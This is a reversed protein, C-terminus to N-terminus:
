CWGTPQFFIEPKGDVIKWIGPLNRDAVYVPGDSSAAATLPYEFEAAPLPITIWLLCVASVSAGLRHVIWLRSVVGLVTHRM